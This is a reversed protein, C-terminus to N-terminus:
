DLISCHVPSVPCHSLCVPSRPEIEVMENLGRLRVLLSGPTGLRSGQQTYGGFLVIIFLYRKKCGGVGEEWGREKM